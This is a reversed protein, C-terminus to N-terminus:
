TKGTYRAFDLGEKSKVEVGLKGNYMTIELNDNLEIDDVYSLVRDDKKVLCYGRQMIKLPSVGDLAMAAAALQGRYGELAMEAARCLAQQRNQLLSLSYACMTEPQSWVRSMMAREYWEFSYHLKRQMARLLSNQCRLILGELNSSDPVALQAAYTPTAARVDAVLDALTYDVEHGVASIVPIQSEFIAQVVEESNFAMLDEFSGGGRGIIILDVLGQANLIRLGEALESPADPGQVSSHVITVEVKSHRNRIVKLIDRLAAGEISTIVGIRKPMSPITKKHKEDFVGSAALKKKLQELYLFIGGVGYPQIEEVYLQYRGQRAFVSVNGRVLIEMGNEPKFQLNRNHNRFMVCSISSEEDKISFYMHGSQQYLKLGTIEGKVWLSHLFMDQEILQNIYNNLQTVTIYQSM